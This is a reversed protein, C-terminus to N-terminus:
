PIPETMARWWLAALFRLFPLLVIIVVVIPIWNLLRWRPAKAEGAM